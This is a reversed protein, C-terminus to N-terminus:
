GEWGMEGDGGGEAPMRRGGCIAFGSWSGAMTSDDFRRTHMGPSRTMTAPSRLSLMNRMQLHPVRADARLRADARVRADARACGCAARRACARVACVCPVTRGWLLIIYHLIIYYLISARVPCVRATERVLKRNWMVCKRRMIM